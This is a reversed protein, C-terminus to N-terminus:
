RREGGTLLCCTFIGWSGQYLHPHTLLPMYVSFFILHNMCTIHCSLRSILTLYGRLPLSLNWQCHSLKPVFITSRLYVSSSCFLATSSVLIFCGFVLDPIFTDNTRLIYNIQHVYCRLLCCVYVYRSCSSNYCWSCLHAHIYTSTGLFMNDGLLVDHIQALFALWHLKM